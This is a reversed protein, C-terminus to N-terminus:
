VACHAFLIDGVLYTHPDPQRSDILKCPYAWQEKVLLHAVERLTALCTALDWSYSEISNPSSTLEWHKNTSYDIPFVFKRGVPILSCYTDTGPIPCSNWVFLLLLIAAHAVRVSGCTNTMIKLGKTLYQNVREVM